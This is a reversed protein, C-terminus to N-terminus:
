GQCAIAFHRYISSGRTLISHWLVTEMEAPEGDLGVKTCIGVRPTICGDGGSPLEGEGLGSYMLMSDARKSPPSADGCPPERCGDVVGAAGTGPSAAAGMRDSVGADVGCMGAQSLALPRAGGVHEKDGMCLASREISKSPAAEGSWARESDGWGLSGSIGHPRTCGESPEDPGACAGTGLEQSLTGCTSPLCGLGVGSQMTRM